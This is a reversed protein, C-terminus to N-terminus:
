QVFPHNVVQNGPLVYHKLASKVISCHPPSWNKIEFGDTLYQLLLTLSPDHPNADRSYCFTEWASIIGGYNALSRICTSSTIYKQAAPPVGETQLTGRVSQHFIAANKWVNPSMNHSGLAPITTTSKVAVSPFRDDDEVVDSVLTSRAM